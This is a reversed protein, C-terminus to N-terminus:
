PYLTNYKNCVDIRKNIRKQEKNADAFAHAWNIWETESIDPVRRKSVKQMFHKHITDFLSGDWRM